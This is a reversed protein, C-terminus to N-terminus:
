WYSFGHCASWGRASVSAGSIASQRVGITGPPIRASLMRPILWAVLTAIVIVKSLRILATM